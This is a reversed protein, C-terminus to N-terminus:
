GIGQYVWCRLHWKGVDAVGLYNCYLFKGLYKGLHFIIRLVCCVRWSLLWHFFWGNCRMFQMWIPGFRNGWYLGIVNFIILPIFRCIILVLDVHEWWIWDNNSRFERDWWWPHLSRLRWPHVLFTWTGIQYWSALFIGQCNMCQCCLALFGMFSFQNGMFDQSHGLLVSM